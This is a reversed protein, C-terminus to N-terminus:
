RQRRRIREGSQPYGLVTDERYIEHEAKFVNADLADSHRQLATRATRDDMEIEKARLSMSGVDKERVLM